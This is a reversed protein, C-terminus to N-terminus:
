GQPGRNRDRHEEEVQKKIELVTGEVRHRHEPGNVPHMVGVHVEVVGRGETEMGNLRQQRIARREGRDCYEAQGGESDEDVLREGRAHRDELVGVSTTRWRDLNTEAPDEDSGVHMPDVM